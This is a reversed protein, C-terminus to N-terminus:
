RTLMHEGDIGVVELANCCNAQLQENSFEIVEHTERLRKHVAVRLSDDTICEACIGIMNTGIYMLFDTHYVPIGIHSQTEFMMVDYGM